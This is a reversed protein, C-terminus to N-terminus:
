GKAPQSRDKQLVAWITAGIAGLGILLWASGDRGGGHLLRLGAFKVMALANLATTLM